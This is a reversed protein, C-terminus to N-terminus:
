GGQVVTDQGFYYLSAVIVFAISAAMSVLKQALLMNPSKKRGDWIQLTLLSLFLVFNIVFFDKFAGLPSTSYWITGPVARDLLASFVLLLYCLAPYFTAVLRAFQGKSSFIMTTSLVLSCISAWWFTQYLQMYPLLDAVMKAFVSNYYSFPM